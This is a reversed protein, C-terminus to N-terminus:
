VRVRATLADIARSLQGGQWALPSHGPDEVLLQAGPIARAYSEGVALPHGPDAEDRSAVVITPMELEQLQEIRDFPRSRPVAELADAVALPHEQAALRQRLVTELTGRLSEPVAALDYAALFGDIGGERLGRALADWRELEAARAFPNPKADFAPTIIALAAVREPHSLAFRVATQAGMSAGALVARQVGREDLVTALDGALREYGYEDADAAPSSHGHGRADYSIVRHGARQLATSGMVVYRRTATLGHLLLVPADGGVANAGGSEAPGSEEGSLTVGDETLVAFARAVDPM